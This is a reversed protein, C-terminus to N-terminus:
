SYELWWTTRLREPPMPACGAECRRIHKGSHSAKVLPCLALLLTRAAVSRHKGHDCGFCIIEQNRLSALGDLVFKFLNGENLKKRLVSECLGTHNNMESIRGEMSRCNVYLRDTWFRRQFYLKTDWVEVELKFRGLIAPHVWFQQLGIPSGAFCVFVHQWGESEGDSRRDALVITGIDLYAVSNICYDWDLQGLGSTSYERQYAEMDCRRFSKIVM